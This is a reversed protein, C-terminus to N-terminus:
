NSKMVGGRFFILLPRTKKDGRGGSDPTKTEGGGGGGWIRSTSERSRSCNESPLKGGTSGLSNQSFSISKNEKKGKGWGRGGGIWRM